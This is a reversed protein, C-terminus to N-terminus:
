RKTLNLNLKLFYCGQPDWCPRILCSLILSMSMEFPECNDFHFFLLGRIKEILAWIKEHSSRRKMKYHRESTPVFLIIDFAFHLLACRDKRSSFACRLKRSVSKSEISFCRM